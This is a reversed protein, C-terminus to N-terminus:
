RDDRRVCRRLRQHAPTGTAPLFGATPVDYTVQESFGYVSMQTNNAPTGTNVPLSAVMHGGRYPQLRELSYLFESGPTSSTTGTTGTSALDNSQYAWTGGGTGGAPKTFGQSQNCYFRFTDVVVRNENPADPNYWDDLPNAPRRLYIWYYQATAPTLAPTMDLYTEVQPPNYDTQTSPGPTPTVNPRNGGAGRPGPTAPLNGFVYYYNQARDSGNNQPDTGANLAPVLHSVWAPALAGAPTGTTAPPVPPM